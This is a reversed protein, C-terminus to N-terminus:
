NLNVVLEGIFNFSYLWKEVSNEQYIPTIKLANEFIETAKKFDEAESLSYAKVYDGLIKYKFIIENRLKLAM